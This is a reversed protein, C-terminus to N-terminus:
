EQLSHLLVEEWFWNPISDKEFKSSYALAKCATDLITESPTPSNDYRCLLKSKSENALVIDSIKAGVWVPQLSEDVLDVGGRGNRYFILVYDRYGIIGTKFGEDAESTISEIERICEEKTISM